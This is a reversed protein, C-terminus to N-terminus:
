HKRTKKSKRSKKHRYTKHRRGGTITTGSSEPAAGLTKVATTDSVLPKPMLADKASTTASSISDSLSQFM